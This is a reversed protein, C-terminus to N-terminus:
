NEINFIALVPDHDSFRIFGSHDSRRSEPHDANVRAFGVGVVARRLGASILIHDLTQAHGDFAYSYRQKADLLDILNIMDPEVMDASPLMVADKGAPTGKITGILDLIGDPFQYSNFDGLLIVKANKDAAQWKQVLEALFEAQLRKKLRVNDQQKPDSYGLYSKLHNVVVTFETTKGVMSAKLVLPPRDNLYVQEGTKPHQYKTDKGFQEVATVKIRSTKVLFGNDIGRGDNGEILFAQYKPDASGAAAADSNIQEALRTLANINEVEIAGIVDPSRMIDRVAASIKKLRAAFAQKEVVPESIGPDDVDDFFNELNMAAVSLQGDAAAPFPIPKPSGSILEAGNPDVLLTNVRYTYHLVGTVSRLTDGTAAEIARSGNQALSEVRIREPNGDFVAMKPFAAKLANHAAKDMELLSEIEFGEERFPRAIGAVVGFFTGNTESSDNKIDVRGGTPAIVTMQAIRVRMGEFRELQDLRNPKMDAATIEVPKPLQVNKTVVTLKDLDRRFVIETVTLGSTQNNPRFEEVKGTVTVLTGPLADAPPQERSGTFVFIGESTAADGDIKDDPTQIFFGTKIRATVVGTVAVTSGAMPSVNGSGQVKSIPVSTQAFASFSLVVISILIKFM